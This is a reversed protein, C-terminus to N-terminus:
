NATEFNLHHLWPWRLALAMPASALAM